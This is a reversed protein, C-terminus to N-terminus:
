KRSKSKNVSKFIKYHKKLREIYEKDLYHKFLELFAQSYKSQIGGPELYVGSLIQAIKRDGYMWKTYFNVSEWGYGITALIEKSKIHVFNVMVKRCDCTNDECYNEMFSYTGIPVRANRSNVMIIKSEQLAIEEFRSQFPLFYM